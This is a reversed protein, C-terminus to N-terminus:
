ARVLHLQLELVGHDDASLVMPARPVDVGFDSFTVETSAVVVVTSGVLQAEVALEVPRTVGHVTLDGVATTAVPEGDAARAGLEIPQTLAFSATPHEGTELAEHVRRDRRRDNTRIATMDVEFAAATVASGEIEITGTVAGTRGVATTSGIGALEEQVRFGVFTGTTADPDGSATSPDVRWTGEIGQPAADDDPPADAVGERAADLSVEAPADDRLFWWIGAGAAVVLVVVVAVIVKM